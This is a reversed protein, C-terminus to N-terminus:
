FTFRAGLGGYKSIFRSTGYSGSLRFAPVWDLTLNIPASSFKYDLGLTGLLGLTTGSSGAISWLGLYAGGGYYWRLNEVSTIDTNWMYLGNVQTYFDDFSAFLEGSNKANFNHKFSAAFASSVDFRAGIANKYSQAHLQSSLAIVNFFVVLFILKKM